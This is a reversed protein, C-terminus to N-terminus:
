SGSAEAHILHPTVIALTRKATRALRPADVSLVGDDFAAHVRNLNVDSPLGFIFRFPRPHRVSPKGLVTVRLGDIEVKLDEPGYGPTEVGIAFKEDTKHLEARPYERLEVPDELMPTM